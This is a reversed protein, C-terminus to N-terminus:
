GFLATPSPISFTINTSTHLGFVTPLWQQSQPVIMHIKKDEPPNICQTSSLSLSNSPHLLVTLPLTTRSMETMESEAGNTGKEKRLTPLDWHPPSCWLGDSVSLEGWGTIHPAVANNHPFHHWKSLPGVPVHGVLIYTWKYVHFYGHFSIMVKKFRHTEM